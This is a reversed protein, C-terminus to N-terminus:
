VGLRWFQSFDIETMQLDVRKSHNKNYCGLSLLVTIKALNRWQLTVMKGKKYMVSDLGCEIPIPYYVGSGASLLMSFHQHVMFSAPIRPRQLLLIWDLALTSAQCESNKHLLTENFYLLSLSLEQCQYWFSSSLTGRALTLFPTIFVVSQSLSSIEELFNSIGLSCKM